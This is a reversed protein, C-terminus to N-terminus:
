GVWLINILFLIFAKATKPFLYMKILLFLGQWKEESDSTLVYPLLTTTHLTDVSTWDSQLIFIGEILPIILKSNFKQQLVEDNEKWNM